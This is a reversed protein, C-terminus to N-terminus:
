VIVMTDIFPLPLSGVLDAWVHADGLYEGKLYFSYKAVNISETDGVKKYIELKQHTLGIFEYGKEKYNEM